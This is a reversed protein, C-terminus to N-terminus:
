TKQNSLNTIENFIQYFENTFGEPGLSQKAKNPYEEQVENKKNM